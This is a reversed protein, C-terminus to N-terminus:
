RGTCLVRRFGGPIGPRPLRQRVYGGSWAGHLAAAPGGPQAATLCGDMGLQRLERDSLERSGAGAAFLSALDMDEARNYSAALFLNPGRSPLVNFCSGGFWRLEQETLLSAGQPLTVRPEEAPAADQRVAPASFHVPEVTNRAVSQGRLGCACLGLMLCVALLLVTKKM